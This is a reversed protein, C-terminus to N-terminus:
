RSVACPPTSSSVKGSFTMPTDLISTVDILGGVIVVAPLPRIQAVKYFAALQDEARNWRDIYSIAEKHLLAQADDSNAIPSLAAAKGGVIGIATM